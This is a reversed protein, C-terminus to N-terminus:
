FTRRASLIGFSLIRPNGQPNQAHSSTFRVGKGLESELSVIRSDDRCAVGGRTSIEPQCKYGLNKRIGWLSWSTDGFSRDLVSGAGPFVGITRSFGPKTKSQSQHSARQKHRQNCMAEFNWVYQMAKTLSNDRCFAVRRLIPTSDDTLDTALEPCRFVALPSPHFGKVARGSAVSRSSLIM